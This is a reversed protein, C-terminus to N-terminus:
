ARPPVTCVLLLLVIAPLGRLALVPQWGHAMRREVWAHYAAAAGLLIVAVAGGLREQRGWGMAWAIGAVLALVVYLYQLHQQRLRQRLHEVGAALAQVPGGSMDVPFAPQIRAQLKARRRDDRAELAAHERAFDPASGEHGLWPVDLGSFGDIGPTMADLHRDMWKGHRAKLAAADAHTLVLFGHTDDLSCDAERLVVYRDKLLEVLSHVMVYRDCGTHTLPVPHAVGNRVPTAVHHEDEHAVLEDGDELQWAFAEIVERETSGSDIWGFAEGYEEHLDQRVDDDKEKDIRRSLAVLEDLPYRLPM